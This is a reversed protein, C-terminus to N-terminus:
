GFDYDKACSGWDVTAVARQIEEPMPRTFADQWWVVTLTSAVNRADLPESTLHAACAM